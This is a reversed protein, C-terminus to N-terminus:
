DTNAIYGRLSEASRGARLGAVGAPHIAIRAFDRNGGVHDFHNHSLVLDIPSDTLARAVPAIPAIGTGSDILVAREDGAVLYSQVHGPECLMWTERRVPVTVFWSELDGGAPWLMAGREGMGVGGARRADRSM